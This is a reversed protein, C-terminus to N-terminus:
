TYEETSEETIIGSVVLQFLCLAWDGIIKKSKQITDFM